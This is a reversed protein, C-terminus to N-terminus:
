CVSDRHTVIRQFRDTAANIIDQDTATNIRDVEVSALRELERCDTITTFADFREAEAEDSGGCATAFAALVLAIAALRTRIPM